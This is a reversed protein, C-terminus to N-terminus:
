GEASRAHESDHPTSDLAIEIFLERCLELGGTLAGFDCLYEEIDQENLQSRFVLPPIEERINSCMNDLVEQVRWFLHDTDFPPLPRHKMRNHLRQREQHILQVIEAYSLLIRAARLHEIQIDELSIGEAVEIFVQSPLGFIDVECDIRVKTNRLYRDVRIPIREWLQIPLDLSGQEPSAIKSQSSSSLQTASQAISNAEVTELTDLPIYQFTEYPRPSIEEKKIIDLGGGHGDCGSSFILEAGTELQM